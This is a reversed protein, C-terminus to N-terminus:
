HLFTNSIIDTTIRLM